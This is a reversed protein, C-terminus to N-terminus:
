DALASLDVTYGPAIADLAALGAALYRVFTFEDPVHLRPPLVVSRGATADRLPGEYPAAVIVRAGRRVATAAAQVLAPDGADDGAVIVVDLAGIWPPAEAAVVIPAGVSGGLLAALMTGANEANGPGAVWVVTRAPSDSRVADLD